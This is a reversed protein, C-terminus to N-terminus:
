GSANGANVQQDHRSFKSRASAHSFLWESPLGKKERERVIAQIESALREQTPIRLLLCQKAVASFEIEVMNLWRLSKPTHRFEVQPGLAFAQAAPFAEYLSSLNHTNWNDQVLRIKEARPYQFSTERGFGAV